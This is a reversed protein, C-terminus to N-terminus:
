ARRGVGAATICVFRSSETHVPDLQLHTQHLVACSDLMAESYSPFIDPAYRPPAPLTLMRRMWHHASVM